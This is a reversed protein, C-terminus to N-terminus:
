KLLVAVLIAADIMLSLLTAIDIKTSMPNAGKKTKNDM